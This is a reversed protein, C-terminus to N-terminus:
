GRQRRAEVVNRIGAAVDTSPVWGLLEGARARSGVLRLPDSWRPRAGGLVDQASPEPRAPREAVDAQRGVADLATRALDLVSTGQGTAANVAVTKGSLGDIPTTAARVLLDAVDDVYTLDRVRGLDNMLVPGDGQLAQDVSMGVLSWVPSAPGYVAFPRVVVVELGHVQALVDAVHEAALKAVAYPSRPRAEHDEAVVDSTPIGYIEASSMVVVRRVSQSRGAAQLVNATGGTHAAVFDSPRAFSQGVSPPGALHICATSEHLLRDTTDPDDIPGWEWRGPGDPAPLRGSPEDNPGVLGVIDTGAGQLASVTARGIFGGAGTLAIGEFTM